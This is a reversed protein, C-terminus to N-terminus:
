HGKLRDDTIADARRCPVINKNRLFMVHFFKGISNVVGQADMGAGCAQQSLQCLGECIGGNGNGLAFLGHLRGLQHHEHAQGNLIAIGNGHLSLAGRLVSGDFSHLLEKFLM